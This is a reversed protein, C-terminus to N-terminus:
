VRYGIRLAYRMGADFGDDYISEGSGGRRSGGPFGGSGAMRGPHSKFKRGRKSMGFGGPSRKRGPAASKSGNRSKKASYSKRGGRGSNFGNM